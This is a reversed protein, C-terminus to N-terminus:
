PILHTFCLKNLQCNLPIKREGARGLLNGMQLIRLINPVVKLGKQLHKTKDTRNLFDRLLLCEDLRVSFDVCNAPYFELWM